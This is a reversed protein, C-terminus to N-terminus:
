FGEKRSSVGNPCGETKSLLTLAEPDDQFEVLVMKYFAAPIKQYFAGAIGCAIAATTDCDGGAAVIVRLCSEFSDTLLFASIAQPVSIQCIELGHGHNSQNLASISDYLKYNQKAYDKIFAKSKGIKAYYVCMATVEAGKLGEPHNHSVETVAKSLAKVEEESSATWGVPSIRMAAGNGYSDNFAYDRTELLWTYFRRGYGAGPYRRGWKRFTDIIKKPDGSLHHALVDMVALTMVSDDTFHFAPSYLDFDKKPADGFEYVSGVSDGVIAGIMAYPKMHKDEKSDSQKELFDKNVLNIQKM